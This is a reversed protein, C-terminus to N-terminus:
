TLLRLLRNFQSSVEGQNYVDNGSMFGRLEKTAIDAEEKGIKEEVRTILDKALSKLTAPLDSFRVKAAQNEFPLPLNAITKGLETTTARVNEVSKANLAGSDLRDIKNILESAAKVAGAYDGTNGILNEAETIKEIVDQNGSTGLDSKLRALVLRFRGQVDRPQTKGPVYKGDEGMPTQEVEINIEGSPAVIEEGEAPVQGGQPAVEPQPAPAPVPQDADAIARDIEQESVPADKVTKKVLKELEADVISAFAEFEEISLVVHPLQSTAIGSFAKKPDTESVAGLNDFTALKERMQDLKASATLSSAVNWNEPILFMKGLARARKAIHKKVDARESEKARGFAQIANKLDAENRIPYSGDPLAFGKKALAERQEKSFDAFQMVADFEAVLDTVDASAMLPLEVLGQEELNSFVM